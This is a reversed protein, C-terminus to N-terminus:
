DNLAKVKEVFDKDFQKHYLHVPDSVIKEMLPLAKNYDKNKLYSLSLYFEADPQFENSSAALRQFLGIAQSMRDEHLYSLGMLLSDRADMNLSRVSNIVVSYKKQRYNKEIESSMDGSGRTDSSNFEVFAEDYLKGPTIQSAQYIRIGIVLVLISAAAAMTYRIVKNFPVPRAKKGSKLEHMMQGHINAVQRTTGLHKVAQIAIRLRTLQEHLRQDTQLRAELAAKEDGSLEGDLYRILLDENHLLDDM